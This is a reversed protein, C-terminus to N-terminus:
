YYKKSTLKSREKYEALGYYITKMMLPKSQWNDKIWKIGQLTEEQGYKKLCHNAFIRSRGQPEAFAEIELIEKIATLFNTIIKFDQHPKAKSDVKTSLKNNDVSVTKNPEAKESRPEHNQQLRKENPEAKQNFRKKAKNIMIIIGYPAYKRQIYGEEELKKLNESITNREVNMDDAIDELKIPKGGLVYGIGKQDIRTIKDLCWMFEWVASGMRKRHEDKLLGNSITIYFM